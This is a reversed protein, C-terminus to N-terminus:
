PDRVVRGSANGALVLAAIVMLLMKDFSEFSRHWM